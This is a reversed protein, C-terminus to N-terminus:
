KIKIKKTTTKIPITIKLLGNDSKATVNDTDTNKPLSITKHLKNEADIVLRDDSINLDIDKKNIGAANVEIVINGDEEYCNYGNIYGVTRVKPFTYNNFVENVIKELELYM